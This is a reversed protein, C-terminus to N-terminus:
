PRLHRWAPASSARWSRSDAAVVSVASIAKQGIPFAMPMSSTGGNTTMTPQMNALAPM